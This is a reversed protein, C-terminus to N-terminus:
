TRNKTRSPTLVSRVIIWGGTTDDDHDHDHGSFKLIPYSKLAKLYWSSKKYASTNHGDAKWRSIKKFDSPGLWGLWGVLRFEIFHSLKQLFQGIQSFNPICTLQVGWCQGSFDQQHLDMIKGDLGVLWFASKYFFNWVEIVKNSKILCWHFKTCMNEKPVLDFWMLDIPGVLWFPTKYLNKLFVAFSHIVKSHRSIDAQNKTYVSTM